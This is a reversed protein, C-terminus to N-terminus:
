VLGYIAGSAGLSPCMLLSPRFGTKYFITSVLQYLTSSTIGASLYFALFLEKSNLLTEFILPGFSQLVLMNMMLHM